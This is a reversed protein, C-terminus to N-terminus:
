KSNKVWALLSKMDSISCLGEMVPDQINFLFRSHPHKYWLRESGVAYTGIKDGRNNLIMEIEGDIYMHILSGNQFVDGCKWEHNSM